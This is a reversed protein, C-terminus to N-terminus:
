QFNNSSKQVNKYIVNQCKKSSKRVSTQRSTSMNKSSKQVDRKNIKRKLKEENKM